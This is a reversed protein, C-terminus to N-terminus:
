LVEGGNALAGAADSGIGMDGLSIGTDLDTTETLNVGTGANSALEEDVMSVEEGGAPANMQASYESIMQDVEDPSASQVANNAEYPLPNSEYMQQNQQLAMAMNQAQQANAKITEPTVSPKNV